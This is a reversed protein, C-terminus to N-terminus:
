FKCNHFGQDVLAKEVMNCTFASTGDVIVDCMYLGMYIVGDPKNISSIFINSNYFNSCGQSTIVLAWSDTIYVFKWINPLPICTKRLTIELIAQAKQKM